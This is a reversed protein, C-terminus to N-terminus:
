FLYLKTFWLFFSGSSTKLFRRECFIGPELSKLTSNNYFLIIIAFCLLYSLSCIFVGLFCKGHKCITQDSQQSTGRGQATFFCISAITNMAMEGLCSCRGEWCRLGWDNKKTVANFLEIDPWICIPVNAKRQVKLLHLSHFFSSVHTMSLMWAQCKTSM